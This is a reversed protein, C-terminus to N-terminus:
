ENTSEHDNRVTVQRWNGLKVNAGRFVWRSSTAVERKMAIMDCCLETYVIYVPNALPKEPFNNKKSYLKFGPAISELYIVNEDVKLPKKGNKM